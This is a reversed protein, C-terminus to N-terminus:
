NIKSYEYDERCKYQIIVDRRDYITRTIGKVFGAKHPVTVVHWIIRMLLKLYYEVSHPRRDNQIGQNIM